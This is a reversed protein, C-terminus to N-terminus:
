IQFYFIKNLKKRRVNKKLNEFYKNISEIDDSIRIYDGYYKHEWYISGDYKENYLFKHDIGMKRNWTQGDNLMFIIKEDNKLESVIDKLSCGEKNIPINLKNMANYDFGYNFNLGLSKIENIAKETNM